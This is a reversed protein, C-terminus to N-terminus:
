GIALISGDSSLSVSQGTQDGSSEGNIDAGVQNWSGNTYGFVRVQGANPFSISSRSSGAAVTYGDASIATSNGCGDGSIQGNISNGLQVWQGFCFVPFLILVFISIAKKM